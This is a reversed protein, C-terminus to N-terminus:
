VATKQHIKLLRLEARANIKEKLKDILCAGHAHLEMIALVFLAIYFIKKM